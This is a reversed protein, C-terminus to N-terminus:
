WRKKKKGKGARSAPLLLNRPAQHVPGSRLPLLLTTINKKRREEKKRERGAGGSTSGRPKKEKVLYM